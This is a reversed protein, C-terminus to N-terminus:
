RRNGHSPEVEEIFMEPAVARGFRMFQVCLMWLYVPSGTILVLDSFADNKVFIAVIILFSFFGFIYPRIQRLRIRIM